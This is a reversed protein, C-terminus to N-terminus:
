LGCGEQLEADTPAEERDERASVSVDVETDRSGCFVMRVTAGSGGIFTFGRALSTSSGAGSGSGRLENRGGGTGRARVGPAAFRFFRVGGHEHRDDRVRM